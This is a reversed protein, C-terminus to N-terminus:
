YTAGACVNFVLTSTRVIGPDVDDNTAKATLASVSSGTYVAMVTDFDSGLTSATVEGAVPATWKWWVSHGIPANDHKPEGTERTAAINSGTFTVAGSTLSITTANAFQDNVPIAGPAGYLKQGGAIDDTRLSDVSSVHSNMIAIVNQNNDDPHNLGLVHGLEHIGVRRVDQMGAHLNGRYSDWAYASNFIIDSEENDNASRFSLTLALIGSGFAEGDATSDLVIENVGNGNSYAGVPATETAFQVTGLQANWAQTAAVVSSTMTTGDSLTTTAPLMIRMTVPSHQWKIVYIGSDDTILSYGWALSTLILSAFL